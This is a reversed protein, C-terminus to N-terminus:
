RRAVPGDVGDRRDAPGSRRSSQPSLPEVRDAGRADCADGGCLRGSRRSIEPRHSGQEGGRDHPRGARHAAHREGGIAAGRDPRRSRDGGHRYRARAFVNRGSRPDTGGQPSGRGRRTASPGAVWSAFPVLVEGALENLAAALREAIRRSNVFILTSRHARILELLRPHIATWISTRSPGQSAPGSRSRRRSASRPWTRSRCKSGSSSSRKRPPTWSRSRVTFRRPVGRLRSSM